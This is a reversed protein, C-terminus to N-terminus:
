SQVLELLEKVYKISLPIIHYIGVLFVIGYLGDIILRKMTRRQAVAYTEEKTVKQM